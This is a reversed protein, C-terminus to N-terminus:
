NSMLTQKTKVIKAHFCHYVVFIITLVIVLIITGSGITHTLSQFWGRPELGSLQDALQKALTEMDIYSPLNNSFTEFIEKQLLQVNLSANDHINQLHFKIQEWNYASNNFHVPTLCFQTSTWDCNLMVQKQVDTLQDGVWRIATRLEQIEEQIEEDIQAQTAWVTHADKTWNQIFNHTQISTQLAVGTVAATTCIAILGLICLLKTLVRSALGAM